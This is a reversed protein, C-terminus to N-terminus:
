HNHRSQDAIEPLHSFWKQLFVGLVLRLLIKEGTLIVGKMNDEQSTFEM